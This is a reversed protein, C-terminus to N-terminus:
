PDKVAFHLSALINHLASRGDELMDTLIALSMEASKLIVEIGRM